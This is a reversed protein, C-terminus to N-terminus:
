ASEFSALTRKVRCSAFSSGRDTVVNASWGPTITVFGHAALPLAYNDQPLDSHSPACHDALGSTSRGVLIVPAPLARPVLPLYVSATSVAEQGGSRVTRYAIKVVRVGTTASGGLGIGVLKTDIAATDLTEGLACGVIAGRDAPTLPPLTPTTYLADASATCPPEITWTGVVEDPADITPAAADPTLEPDSSHSCAALAVVFALRNM